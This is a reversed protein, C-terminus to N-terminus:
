ACPASCAVLVSCPVADLLTAGTPNHWWRSVGDRHRHGVVILDAHVEQALNAIEVIPEGQRLHGDVDVGREKLEAIGQQLITNAEEYADRMMTESSYTDGIAVGLPLRMVALLHTRANYLRALEAGECLATRGEHSGDYALVISQYRFPPTTTSNM